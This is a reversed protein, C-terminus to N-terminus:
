CCKITRSQLGYSMSNLLHQVMMLYQVNISKEEKKFVIGFIDILFNPCFNGIEEFVPLFFIQHTPSSTYGLDIRNNTTSGLPSQIKMIIDKRKQTKM